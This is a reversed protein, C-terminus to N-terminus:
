RQASFEARSSDKGWALFWFKKESSLFVEQKQTMKHKHLYIQVPYIGLLPIETDYTLYM